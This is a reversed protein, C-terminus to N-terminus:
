FVPLYFSSPIRKSELVITTPTQTRPASHFSNRFDVDIVRHRGAKQFTQAEVMGRSGRPEFIWSIMEVMLLRPDM